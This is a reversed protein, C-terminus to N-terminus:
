AVRPQRAGEVLALRIVRDAQDLLGAISAGCDQIGSALQCQGSHLRQTQPSGRRQFDITLLATGATSTLCRYLAMGSGEVAMWAVWCDNEPAARGIEVWALRLEREEPPAAM